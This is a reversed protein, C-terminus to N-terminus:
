CSERNVALNLVTKKIRILIEVEEEELRNRLDTKIKTMTSFCRELVANSVPFVGLLTIVKMVNSFAKRTSLVSWCSESSVHQM